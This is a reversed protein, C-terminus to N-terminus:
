RPPPNTLGGRLAITVFLFRALFQFWVGDDSSCPAVPEKKLPHLSSEAFWRLTSIATPTVGVIESVTPQLVLWGVGVFVTLPM